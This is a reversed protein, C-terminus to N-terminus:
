PCRRPAVLWHRWVPWRDLAEALEAYGHRNPHAGDGAAAEDRWRASVSVVRFADFYPVGLRRCLSALESSLLDIRRSAPGDDQIPPPGVMLTTRWERAEALITEAYALVQDFDLRPAGDPESACDNSGFSFVLRGDFQPPLRAEAERRWREAIDASTDRRVGLNYSTLDLGRCRAAACIRGVWGLCDDDGTGNVFSDGFFCIRVDAPEQM